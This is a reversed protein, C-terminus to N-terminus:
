CQLCATPQLTTTASSRREVSGTLGKKPEEGVGKVADANEALFINREPAGGHQDGIVNREDIRQEDAGRHRTENSEHQM